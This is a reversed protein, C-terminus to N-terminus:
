DKNSINFPLDIFSEHTGQIVWSARCPQRIPAAIAPKPVAIARLEAEAAQPASRM